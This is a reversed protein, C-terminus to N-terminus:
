ECSENEIIRVRKKIKFPSQTNCDVEQLPKKEEYEGKLIAHLRKDEKKILAMYGTGWNSYGTKPQKRSFKYSMIKNERNRYELINLITEDLMLMNEMYKHYDFYDKLNSGKYVRRQHFTTLCNDHFWTYKNYPRVILNLLNQKNHVINFDKVIILKNYDDEIIGISKSYIGYMCLLMHQINYYKMRKEEEESLTTIAKCENNEKIHGKNYEKINDLSITPLDLLYDGNRLPKITFMIKEMNDTEKDVFIITYIGTNVADSIEKRLSNRSNRSIQRDRDLQERTKKVKGHKHNKNAM